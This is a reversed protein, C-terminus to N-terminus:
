SSPSSLIIKHCGGGIIFLLPLEAGLFYSVQTGRWAQSETGSWRGHLLNNDDEDDDDDDNYDDDDDDDIIKMNITYM